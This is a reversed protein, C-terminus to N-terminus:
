RAPQSLASELHNLLAQDPILRLSATYLPARPFLAPSLKVLDKETTIYGHCGTATLTAELQSMDAPQYSYHDPFPIVTEIILGAQKLSSQFRQPNAIACFCLLSQPLDKGNIPISEIPKNPRKLWRKFGSLERYVRYVPIDPYRQELLAQLQEARAETSQDIGSIAFADARNLALTSERLDGGPFVRSNGAFTIVDFLVLDFDRKVALHQFGDDLILLDCGYHEIVQRSVRRRKKGTAVVVGSTARAILAPEDGSLVPTLLIQQGDSVINCVGTSKARYGRSVVAPKFRRKQYYQALFIVLPTKGTGGMTLNGVSIVPVKFQESRLLGIRYFLARIKMLSAYIPSFPLGLLFLLKKDPLNM